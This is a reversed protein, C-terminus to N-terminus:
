KAPKSSSKVEGSECEHVVHKVMNIKSRVERDEAMAQGTGNRQGEDGGVSSNMDSVNEDGTAMKRVTCAQM